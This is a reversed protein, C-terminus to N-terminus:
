SRRCAVSEKWKMGSGCLRQKVIVKCAAETVGSGIPEKRRVRAAYNMRGAKSQNEFYTIARQVDENEKAWPRVKALSKLQNSIPSTPALPEHKLKHCNEDLWAKGTASQSRYIM